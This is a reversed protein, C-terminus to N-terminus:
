LNFAGGFGLAITYQFNPTGSGDNIGNAGSVGLVADKTAPIMLSASMQLFFNDVTYRSQGFVEMAFFIGQTNYRAIFEADSVGSNNVVSTLQPKAFTLVNRLGIAQSFHKFEFGAALQLVGHGYLGYSKLYSLANSDRGDSIHGKAWGFGGGLDANLRFKLGSNGIPNLHFFGLALEGGVRQTERNQKDGWTAIPDADVKATLALADTLAVAANAGVILDHSAVGINGAVEFDGSNKLNHAYAHHPTVYTSSVCANLLAFMLLFTSQLILSTNNMPKDMGM